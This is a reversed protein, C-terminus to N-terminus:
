EFSLFLGAATVLCLSVNICAAALMLAPRQLHAAAFSSPSVILLLVLCAPVVANSASRSYTARSNLDDASCFGRYLCM